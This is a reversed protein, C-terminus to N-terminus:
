KAMDFGLRLGDYSKSLEGVTQIASNGSLSSAVQLLTLLKKAEFVLSMGSMGNRTVYGNVSLILGKMNIKCNAADYTWNGEWSKNLLKAKFTGDQNFTIQTNSSNFGLKDYQSKLKEEIQTAGVEGTAKALANESTFAVGPGDYHWSGILQNASLKDLGIVSALVNGLAEGNTVAGLIGGLINGTSSSTGSTNGTGTQGFGGLTGLGGCATITMGVLVAVIM